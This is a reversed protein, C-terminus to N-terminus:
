SGAKKLRWSDADCQRNAGELTKNSTAQPMWLAM